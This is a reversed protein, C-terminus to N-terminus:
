VMSKEAQFSVSAAEVVPPLLPGVLPVDTPERYRVTARVVADTRVVQLDLRDATLGAASEAVQRAAQDTGGAAAVRAAERAAHTVAVQRAAVMAVQVVGLLLLTVLPLLFAVEVTAQGSGDRRM